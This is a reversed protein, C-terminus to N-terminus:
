NVSVEEDNSSQLLLIWTHDELSQAIQKDLAAKGRTTVWLYTATSWIVSALQALGGEKNYRYNACAADHEKRSVVAIWDETICSANLHHGSLILSDFTNVDTASAPDTSPMIGSTNLAALSPVFLL